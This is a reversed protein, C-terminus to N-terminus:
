TANKNRVRSVVPAARFLQSLIPPGRKKLLRSDIRSGEIRELEAEEPDPLDNM